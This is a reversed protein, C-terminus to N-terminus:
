ASLEQIAQSSLSLALAAVDRALPAESKAVRKLVQIGGPTWTALAAAARLRVWWAPDGLARELRIRAGRPRIRGVSRIAQTRVEWAQDGLLVLLAAASEKSPFTGLARAVQIRVEVGPHRALDLLPPALRPDPIRAALKVYNPLGSRLVELRAILEPVVAPGAQALMGAYYAFVTPKMTALRGLAVEILAGTPLVHIAGIAALHVAPHPDRSLRIVNPLDNPEAAVALYRASALRHWWWRSTVGREVTQHVAPATVKVLRRWRSREIRPAWRALTRLGQRGPVRELALQVDEPASVGLAYRELVQDLQHQPRDLRAHRVRDRIRAFTTLGLLVAIGSLVLAGTVLLLDSLVVAAGL